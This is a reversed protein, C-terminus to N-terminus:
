AGQQMKWNSRCTWREAAQVACRALSSLPVTDWRVVQRILEGRRPRQVLRHPGYMSPRCCPYFTAAARQVSARSRRGQQDSSTVLAWDPRPGCITELRSGIQSIPSWRNTALWDLNSLRVHRLHRPRRHHPDACRWNSRGRPNRIVKQIPREM